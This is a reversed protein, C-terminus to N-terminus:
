PKALFAEVTQMFQDTEEIFPFHGSKEFMVFSAQPALAKYQLSVSPYFVRDYRGALVLTPMALLRLDRRFDVRRWDASYTLDFNPGLIACAVEVNMPSDDLKKANESNYFYMLPLPVDPLAEYEKSCTTAGKARLKQMKEWIEPFQNRIERDANKDLSQWAAFDFGTDALILHRVSKPYRIAYSQAVYGGYSHGLVDITGLGLAKRLEELDDVDRALTYVHADKPHTSKGRGLADFYIIRRKAALASFWPHFYDHSYGPGGAILVLPEGSGESEYWLDVGHVRVFSGALHSTSPTVAAAPPVPQQAPLPGALLAAAFLWSLHTAKM